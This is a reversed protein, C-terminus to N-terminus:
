IQSNDIQISPGQSSAIFISKIYTGKSGEPRNAKVGDLLVQLNQELKEAGFSLKGALSHTSGFKDVRVEVQGQMIKAISESINASVTGNKPTPMKRAQGLQKAIKALDKMVTPHAVAFDFDMFGKSVKDVLDELGAEIAGAKKAEDVMDDPVFAVVKYTKGTGHPLSTTFRLIQDAHKPDLGTNIHLEISPDFKVKSTEPLIALAEKLTYLEKTIAAKAAAYNKSLKKAM